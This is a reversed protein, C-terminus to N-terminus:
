NGRIRKIIICILFLLVNMFVITSGVPFGYVISVVLGIGSTFISSIASFISVAKFSSFLKMASVCPFIMLACILLSGVLRIAISITIGIIISLALNLMNTNLGSSKAYNEDFTILFIKKYYLIYFMLVLISLATCILVDYKTLTLISLSGFLTTCVDVSVNPGTKFVNMVMYGLALFAVSIMAISADATLRSKESYRLLLVSTIITVPLILYIENTLGIVTAVSMSGFAVNSLSNGIYSYRKLVLIVGLLSSSIAILIGAFFAYRVFPFDWYEILKNVIFNIDFM